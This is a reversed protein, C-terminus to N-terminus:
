GRRSRHPTTCGAMGIQFASEALSKPDGGGYPQRVVYNPVYKYNTRTWEGSMRPRMASEQPQGNVLTSRPPAYDLGARSSAGSAQASGALLLLGIFLPTLTRVKM